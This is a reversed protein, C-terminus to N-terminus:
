AAETQASAPAPPTCAASGCGTIPAQPLHEPHAIKGSGPSYGVKQLHGALATDMTDTHQVFWVCLERTMERIPTLDGAQGMALGKRLVQLVMHHQATHCNAAAFHTAQMYRDEADFHAQTHEILKEWHALLDADPAAEVIALLDVFQRHVADMEPVDLLLQDTWELTPM